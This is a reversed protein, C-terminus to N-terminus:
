TLHKPHYKRHFLLQRIKKNNSSDETKQAPTKMTISQYITKLTHLVNTNYPTPYGSSYMQTQKNVM